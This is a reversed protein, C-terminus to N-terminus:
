TSNSIIKITIIILMGENQPLNKNEDLPNLNSKIIQEETFVIPKEPDRPELYELNDNSEYSQIDTSLEDGTTTTSSSIYTSLYNKCMANAHGIDDLCCVGESYTNITTEIQFNLFM